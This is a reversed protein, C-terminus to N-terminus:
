LKGLDAEELTKIGSNDLAEVAAEQNDVRFVIFASKGNGGCFAYAYEVNVDAAQLLTLISNFGGPVDPVEVAIVASLNVTFDNEKLVKLAEEPHSVIMRLIGFESTDAVSLAQINIKHKGLCETVALLRGRRNELFISIQRVSM